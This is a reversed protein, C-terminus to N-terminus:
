QNQSISLRICKLGRARENVIASRSLAPNNNTGDNVLNSFTTSTTGNTHSASFLALADPGTPTISKGWVDTYATTAFGNLLIDAYSQDLKDMAEDMVSTAIETIQEAQDWERMLQTVPVIAGYQSQTLTFQDGEDSTLRPFASGDAVEEIGKVGHLLQEIHTRRAEDVVNFLMTSTKMEAVKIDRVENMVGDLYTTLAAYDTVKLAM